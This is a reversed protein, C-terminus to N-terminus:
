KTLKDVQGQLIGHVREIALEGMLERIQASATPTISMKFTSTTLLETIRYGKTNKRMPKFKGRVFGGGDEYKGRAFVGVHGSSMTAIFANRITKPKGKEFSVSISSGSQKPRFAIVPLNKDNIKIGGWLSSKTPTPSVKATDKIYKPAINYRKKLQGNVGREKNSITRKLADKLGRATSNLIVDESLQNRFERQIREIEGRKEQTFRIEM